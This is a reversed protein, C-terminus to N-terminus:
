KYAIKQTYSGIPICVSFGKLLLILLIFRVSVIKETKQTRCM